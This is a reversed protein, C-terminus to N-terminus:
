LNDHVFRHVLPGPAQARESRLSLGTPIFLEQEEPAATAMEHIQLNAPSAQCTQLEFMTSAHHYYPVLWSANLNGLLAEVPDVSQAQGDADEPEGNLRSLLLLNNDAMDFCNRGDKVQQSPDSLSELLYTVVIPQSGYVARHLPLMQANDLVQLDAKFEVILKLATLDGKYASWHATTCGQYDADIFLEDKGRELLLLMLQYRTASPHQAAIMLPTAGLSDASRVDAEAEILQRVVPTHGKVIAWMLPTQKNNAIADVPCCHRLADAVFDCNGLLATWHLCSHGAEDRATWHQPYVELLERAISLDSERIAQFIDVQAQAAAEGPKPADCAIEGHDSAVTSAADIQLLDATTPHAPPCSDNAVERM